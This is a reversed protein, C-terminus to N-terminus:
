EALARPNGDGQLAAAEEILPTAERIFAGVDAFERYVSAFRVYAVKDIERLAQVVMEGVIRSAVEREYQEQIRREVLDVVEELRSVPVPRKECARLLGSLVKERSFVERRQDKKIVYCPTEQPREYTTYRKECQQCERRRRIARGDDSTRSDIVRDDEFGCFPCKM